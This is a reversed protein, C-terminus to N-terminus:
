HLSWDLIGSPTDTLLHIKCFPIHAFEAANIRRPAEPHTTHFDKILDPSNKLNGEPLWENDSPPYGKWKVLYQLKRWYMQSNEIREM